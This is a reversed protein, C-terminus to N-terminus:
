DESFLMQVLEPKLLEDEVLKQPTGYKMLTPVGTVKLETRFKNQLNKWEPRAGTQCYIFVSGEPLKHLEARVIPEATVCDPCWSVGDAGKSGTFYAFITKGKNQEVAKVFDDYGSVEVIAM